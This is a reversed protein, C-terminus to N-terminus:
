LLSWSIRRRLWRWTAGGDTGVVLRRTRVKVISCKVGNYRHLSPSLSEFGLQRIWLLPMLGALQCLDFGIQNNLGRFLVHSRIM